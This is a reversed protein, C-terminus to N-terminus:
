QKESYWLYGCYGLDNEELFEIATEFNKHEKYEKYSNFFNVFKNDELLNYKKEIVHIHNINVYDMIEVPEISNLLQKLTVKDNATIINEVKNLDKKYLHLSDTFHRQFGVKCGIKEALYCQFLFFLIVNYPIGLFLDNSRNIVTMDLKGERIKLMVSTNCPIDRSDSGLDEVSWMSLVVRRTERNERLIQIAQEIQDQNFKKRLRFGYAGNLTLGDDSYKDYNSIHEQLISLNNYGLIFWSFEVLAFFPNFSRKKLLPMRFRDEHIEIFAPGLDKVLGIRSECFKEDSGLAESLLEFYILTFNTGSKSIM